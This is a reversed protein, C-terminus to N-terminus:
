PLRFVMTVEAQTEVPDGDVYTPEYRWERIAAMAASALLSPGSMPRVGLVQGTRGITAHVEVGGELRRNRAEIPYFPESHSILRGVVVRESRSFSASARPPVQMWRRSSIAVTSSASVADNALNVVFAPSGPEPANVLISYQGTQTDEAIADSHAAPTKSAQRAPPTGPAATPKKSQVVAGGAGASIAHSQNAESNGSKVGEDNHGATKPPMTETPPASPSVDSPAPKAEATTDRVSDSSSEQEKGRADTPSDAPQDTRTPAQITPTAPGQMRAGVDAIWKGITSRGVTAGFVFLMAVILVLLLGARSSGKRPGSGDSWAEEQSTDAAFMSYDGFKFDHSASEEACEGRAAAHEDAAFSARQAALHGDAVNESRLGAEAEAGNLRTPADVESRQQGVGAREGKEEASVWRRIERRTGEPLELFQIGAMTKNESVWVIRGRASLWGRFQPIQFRLDPFEVGQFSLASQVAFGGEGLDLLIGGNDQGLEVYAM